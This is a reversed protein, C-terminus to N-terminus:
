PALNSFPSFPKIHLIFLSLLALNLKGDPRQICFKPAQHSYMLSENPERKKVKKDNVLIVSILICMQMHTFVCM